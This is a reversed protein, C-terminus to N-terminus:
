PTTIWERTYNPHKIAHRVRAQEEEPLARDMLGNFSLRILGFGTRTILVALVMAIVADLWFLKTLWALVVGVLVGGSTWVDTM